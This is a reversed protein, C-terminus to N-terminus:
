LLNKAIILYAFEILLHKNQNGEKQFENILMLAVEFLYEADRMTIEEKLYLLEVILNSVESKNRIRTLLTKGIEM